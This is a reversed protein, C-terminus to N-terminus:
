SVEKKHRKWKMWLYHVSLALLILSIAQGLVFVLHVLSAITDLNFFNCWLKDMPYPLCHSPAPEVKLYLMEEPLIEWGVKAWITGDCICSSEKLLCVFLLFFMLPLGQIFM